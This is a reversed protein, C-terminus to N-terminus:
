LVRNLQIYQGFYTKFMSYIQQLSPLDIFYINAIFIHKTKFKMFLYNHWFVNTFTSVFAFTFLRSSILVLNM